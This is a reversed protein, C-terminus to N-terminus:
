GDIYLAREMASGTGGAARYAIEIRYLGAQAVHFDWRAFGEEGTVLASRGNYDNSKESDAFEAADTGQLIIEDGNYGASVHAAHYDNYAFDAWPHLGYMERGFSAKTNLALAPLIILLIILALSLAAVGKIIGPVKKM